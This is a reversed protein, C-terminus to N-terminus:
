RVYVSHSRRKTKSKWLKGQLTRALERANRQGLQSLLIEANRAPDNTFLTLNVPQCGRDADRLAAVAAMREKYRERKFASVDAPTAKDIPISRDVMQLHRSAVIEGYGERGQAYMENLLRVVIPNMVGLLFMDGRVQPKCAEIEADLALAQKPTLKGQDMWQKIPAYKSNYVRQKDPDVPPDPPVPNSPPAPKLAEAADKIDTSTMQRDQAAAVSAAAVAIKPQDEVVYKKLERTVAENPLPVGTVSEIGKATEMANILQRSRSGSFGWRKQCYDEWTRYERYLQGDRVILLAEAVDMFSKLGRTIVAECDTLRKKEEESLPLILETNSM